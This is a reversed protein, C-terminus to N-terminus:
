FDKRKTIFNKQCSFYYATKEYTTYANCSAGLNSFLDSADVGNISFMRHELFHAAGWPIKINKGDVLIKRVSDFHGFKSVIYADKQVFGPKYLLFVKMDNKLTTTYVVEQINKYVKRKM